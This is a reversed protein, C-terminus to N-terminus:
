LVTKETCTLLTWLQVCIHLMMRQYMHLLHVFLEVGVTLM